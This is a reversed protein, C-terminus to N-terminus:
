NNGSVDLSEVDFEGGDIADVAVPTVPEEESEHNIYIFSLFVIVAGLWYLLSSTQSNVIMQGVLSLPISLSLGVTVVLPSTLLIAYAWCVDSVLSTLTM